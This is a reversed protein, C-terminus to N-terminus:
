EKMLEEYIRDRQNNDNFLFLKNMRDIYKKNTQGKNILLKEIDNIAEDATTVLNGFGEEIPLDLERYLNLGAKFLSFWLCFKFLRYHM